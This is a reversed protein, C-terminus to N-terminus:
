KAEESIPPSAKAQAEIIDQNRVALESGAKTSSFGWGVVDKLFAGAILTGITKFFEDQRLTPDLWLMALMVILLSYCAVAIWGRADPWRISM